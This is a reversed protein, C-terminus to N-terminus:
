LRVPQPDQEQIGSRHAPPHNRPLANRDYVKRSSEFHPISFRSDKAHPGYITRFYSDIRPGDAWRAISWPLVMSYAYGIPWQRLRGRKSLYRNRIGKLRGSQRSPSNRWQGQDRRGISKSGGPKQRNCVSKGRTTRILPGSRRSNRGIGCIRRCMKDKLDVM